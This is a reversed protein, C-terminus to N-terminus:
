WRWKADIQDYIKDAREEHRLAAAIGGQVRRRTAISKADCFEAILDRQRAIFSAEEGTRATYLESLKIARIAAASAALHDSESHEDFMGRIAAALEAATM